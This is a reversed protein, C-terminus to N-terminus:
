LINNFKTCNSCVSSTHYQHLYRFNNAKKGNWIKKFNNKFINGFSYNKIINVYKDSWAVVCCPLMEGSATIQPYIWPYYCSHPKFETSPLRIDINNKKACASILPFVKKLKLISVDLVNANQFTIYHINLKKALDFIKYIHDLKETNMKLLVVNLLIKTSSKTKKHIAMLDAINKVFLDFKAGLRISEYTRPFGSELSFSIATPKQKLIQQSLNKTLLQGSTIISFKIKNKRTTKLLKIFQPNLLGEGM